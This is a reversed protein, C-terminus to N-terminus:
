NWGGNEVCEESVNSGDASEAGSIGGTKNASVSGFFFMGPDVRRSPVCERM